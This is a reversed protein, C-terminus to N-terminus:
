VLMGRRKGKRSQKTTVIGGASGVNMKTARALGLGQALVRTAEVPKHMQEQTHKRQQAMTPMAAPSLGPYITTPESQKTLSSRTRWRWSRSLRKQKSSPQRQHAQHSSTLIFNARRHASRNPFGM